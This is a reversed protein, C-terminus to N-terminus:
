PTAGLSESSYGGSAGSPKAFLYSVIDDLAQPTLVTQGQYPAAVKHLGETSLYPPMITHPNFRRADAIRERVQAPTSREALGQLSPGLAGGAPLGPIQHCLVCGTDQRQLLLARGREPSATSVVGVRQGGAQSWGACGVLGGAVVASALASAAALNM